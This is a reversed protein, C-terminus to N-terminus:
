LRMKLEKFLYVARKNSLSSTEIHPDKLDIGAMPLVVSALHKYLPHQSDIRM